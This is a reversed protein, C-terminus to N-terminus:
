LPEFWARRSSQQRTQTREHAVVEPRGLAVAATATGPDISYAGEVVSGAPNMTTAAGCRNGKEMPGGSWRAYDSTRRARDRLLDVCEVFVSLHPHQICASPSCPRTHRIAQGSGRTAVRGTHDSAQRAEHLGRGRDHQDRREGSRMRRHRRARSRHRVALFVSPVMMASRLVVGKWGGATADAHRCARGSRTQRAGLGSARQVRPELVGMGRRFLRTQDNEGRRVPKGEGYTRGEVERLGLDTASPGEQSRRM